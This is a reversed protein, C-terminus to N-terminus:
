IHYGALLWGTDSFFTGSLFLSLYVSLILDLQLFCIM